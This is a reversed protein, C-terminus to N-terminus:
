HTGTAAGHVVRDASASNLARKVRRMGRLDDLATTVIKVRSDPDDVWHVPVEHIRLGFHQALLLLESDFFWGDDEIMPLLLSAADRRVAKFGCQADSFRAGSYARLLLNYCRSTVERKVGRGVVRAGPALRSGIAVDAANDLLPTVLPEFAALDTSLDVDMYAVVAADSSSWTERLALGRGKRDIHMASVSSLENRLARAVAYTDDVSANDAITIQWSHPFGDSLFAHLRHVSAALTAEENYVPVVVDVLAVAAFNGTPDRL